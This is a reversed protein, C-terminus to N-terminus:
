LSAELLEAPPATVEYWVYDETEGDEPPEVHRRLTVLMEATDIKDLPLDLLYECDPCFVGIIRGDDISLLVSRRDEYPHQCFTM